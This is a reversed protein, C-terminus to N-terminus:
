LFLSSRGWGPRPAPEPEPEVAEEGLPPHEVTLVEPSARRHADRSFKPDLPAPAHASRGGTKVRGRSMSKDVRPLGDPQMRALERASISNGGKGMIYIMSGVDMSAMTLDDAGMLDGKRGKGGRKGKKVPSEDRGGAPARPPPPPLEIDPVEEYRMEKGGVPM